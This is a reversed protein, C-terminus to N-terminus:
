DQMDEYEPPHGDHSVLRETESVAMHGPNVCLLNRCTMNVWHRPPLRGVFTRWFIENAAVRGEYHGAKLDIYPTAVRMAAHGSRDVPGSWDWCGTALNPKFKAMLPTRAEERAPLFRSIDPASALAAPLYTM